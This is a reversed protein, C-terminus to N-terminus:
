DNKKLVGIEIGLEKVEMSTKVCEDVWAKAEDDVILDYTKEFIDPKCPYFEGAIGKIIWDGINAIHEGELTKVIFKGDRMVYNKVGLFKHMTELMDMRLQVAEVIIPKKVFRIPKEYLKM